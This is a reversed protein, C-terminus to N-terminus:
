NLGSRLLSAAALEEELRLARPILVRDEIVAHVALDKELVQLQTLLVRYPTQNTAPPQYQRITEYIQSLENETDAHLNIFNRLSFAHTHFLIASANARSNARHLMSIYPLLNKEEDGIHHALDAKYSLYFSRLVYLLPHSDSYDMLLLEISQGIEPLKKTLYYRHTRRVYDLITDLSYANLEDEHFGPDEEFLRVLTGVFKENLGMNKLDSLTCEHRVDYRELIHKMHYHM